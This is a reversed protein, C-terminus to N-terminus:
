LKDFMEQLREALFAGKWDQWRNVIKAKVPNKLVYKIIRYFEEDTRIFHDYSETEWFSGSRNLALNAKRATGGKLSQMIKALTEEDSVFKPHKSTKDERLNKESINPKFVVHVHNSM